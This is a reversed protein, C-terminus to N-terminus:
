TVRGGGPKSDGIVYWREEMRAWTGGLHGPDLAIRVGALPKKKTSPPLSSVAHWYHPAPKAKAGPTAFRLTFKKAPDTADEAIVASDDNVAITAKWAGDPAYVDNLLHLFEDHTITGQFIELRSWDPPKALPSLHPPPVPAPM